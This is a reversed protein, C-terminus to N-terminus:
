HQNKSTGIFMHYYASQKFSSNEKVIPKIRDKRHYERYKQGRREEVRRSKLGFPAINYRQHVLFDGTTPAM